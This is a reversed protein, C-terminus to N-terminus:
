PKRSSELNSQPRALPRILNESDNRPNNVDTSVMHARMEGSPYPKLVDGLDDESLQGDSLWLAEHERRLIVPMRDHIKSMFTNARTTIITFSQLTGGEPDRWNDYIGAFAFMTDDKTQIYYPQKTRGSRRWEYFGTAPVLCRRRKLSARFAPKTAVSEARANIMRNGIKPDKAWFPVLGWRMGVVKNTSERVVVPVTQTPAINFRPEVRAAQDIVEFRTHFARVYALAFRGCM